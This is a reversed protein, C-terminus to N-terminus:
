CRQIKVLLQAVLSHGPDVKSAPSLPSKKHDALHHLEKLQKLLRGMFPRSFKACCSMWLLHGLLQQLAKKTTTTKRLRKEIEMNVEELKEPPVRIEQKITDFLVGLYPMCTSPSHYKDTSEKLGFNM